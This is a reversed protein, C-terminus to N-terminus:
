IRRLAVRVFMTGVGVSALYLVLGVALAYLLFPQAKQWLVVFANLLPQFHDLFASFTSAQETVQQSYSRVSDDVIWGSHTFAAAIAVAMVLFAAKAALPWNWWSQQWWPKNERARIAALVRSALTPPAPLDPLKRLEQHVFAELKPDFEPQM